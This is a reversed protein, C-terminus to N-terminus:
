LSDLDLQFIPMPDGPQFPVEGDEARLRADYYLNLDHILRHGHGALYVPPCAFIKDSASRELSRAGVYNGRCYHHLSVAAQILGQYYKREQGSCESWLDELVEHAEFFEGCNFYEAFRLYRRDLSSHLSPDPQKMM